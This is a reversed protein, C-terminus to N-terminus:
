VSINYVLGTHTNSARTGHAGVAERLSVVMIYQRRQIDRDVEILLNRKFGVYWMNRNVVVLHGLTNGSTDVTGDSTALGMSASPIILIGRYAALQGTLVVAMDRIKDWTTVNTLKLFGNLYTSIDCIM